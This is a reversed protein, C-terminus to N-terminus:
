LMSQTWNIFYWYCWCSSCSTMKRKWLAVTNLRSAELKSKDTLDDHHMNPKPLHLKLYKFFPTVLFVPVFFCLSPLLWIINLSRHIVSVIRDISNKVWNAHITIYICDAMFRSTHGSMVQNNYRIYLKVM